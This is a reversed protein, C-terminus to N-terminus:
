PLTANRSFTAPCHWRGRAFLVEKECSKVELSSDLFTLYSEKEDVVFGRASSEVSEMSFLLNDLDRLVENTHDVWQFSGETVAMWRYSAAGALLLALM